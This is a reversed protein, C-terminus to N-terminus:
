LNMKELPTDLGQKKGLLDYIVALFERLNFPKAFTCDAGLKAAWTLYDQESFFGAGSIAILKLKPNKKKLAIIVELGDVEPMLIDTIVLDIPINAELELGIKGNEAEVVEFNDFELLRRLIKRMSPDDDIVLIRPYSDIEYKTM